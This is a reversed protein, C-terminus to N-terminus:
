SKALKLFFERVAQEHLSFALQTPAEIIVRESTENSQVFELLEASNLSAALGFILITNDPASLVRFDEIKTPDIHLGVEEWVERAGAEQWTEGAEVYGGPLALEGKRPEVDRRILLLKNNDVPILIVAVPTPNLHTTRGCNSCKRPWAQNEEFAQGCYSCHSNKVYKVTM